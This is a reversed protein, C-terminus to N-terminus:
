RLLGCDGSRRHESRLTQYSTIVVDYQALSYPDMDRKVGHHVTVKLKCEDAVQVILDIVHQMQFAQCQQILVHIPVHYQATMDCWVLLHTSTCAHSCSHKCTHTCTHATSSGALVVTNVLEHPVPHSHSIEVDACIEHRRKFTAALDSSIRTHREHKLVLTCSLPWNDSMDCLAPLCQRRLSVVQKIPPFLASLGHLLHGSRM